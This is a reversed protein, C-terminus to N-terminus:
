PWGQWGIAVRTAGPGGRGDCRCRQQGLAVRAAGAGSAVSEKCPWREGLKHGLIMQRGAAVTEKCPWREGLKHGLIMQLGAADRHGQHHCREAPRRKEQATIPRCVSVCSLAVRLGKARGGPGRGRRWQKQGGRDVDKRQVAPAGGQWRRLVQQDPVLSRRALLTRSCVATAARVASLGILQVRHKAWLFKVLASDLIEDGGIQTCRQPQQVLVVERVRQVTKNLLVVLHPTRPTSCAPSLSSSTACVASSQPSTHCPTSLRPHEVGQTPHHPPM